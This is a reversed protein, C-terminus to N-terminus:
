WIGLRIRLVNNSDYVQILSNTIVLRAGTTASAVSFTATGVQLDAIKAGTITANAIKANTITGDTIKTSDVALNAIKANTILGNDIQASNTIIGSAAILGGTIANAAIKDTQIAGAQIKDATIANAAIADASIAGAAIKGATVSNAALKDATIAGAEIKGSTVSNADLKDTTIANAAIQGATITGSLDTTPVAASWGSSTYRYLKGDTTLVATRGVFNGLSPLSSVVEVPRLSDSFNDAALTGNIDTALVSSTWETGTYRYMKNDSTLFVIKAGTYGSPSPLSSVISVPEIGAAFSALNVSGSTISFIDDSWATGTWRYLANATTDYKIQGVFDGSAPLASVPEIGYAGAESFLNMVEQSFQDSDIFATTGAFMSTYDSKNGSRDVSRAWYYYTENIDLGSDVYSTGRINGIKQSSVRNDVINRFIEVYDFDADSPNTWNLILQKYGSRVIINDILAPPTVDGYSIYEIAVFDSQVGINNIARVRISYAIGTTVPAITFVRQSTFRSNYGVDADPVPDLISGYDLGFTETNAVSGYNENVLASETILGWDINGSGRIWQVEYNTVWPSEPADWQLIIGTQVAGDETIISQSDATINVPVDITYLSDKGFVTKVLESPISRKGISNIACVRFTYIGSIANPIDVSVSQTNPLTIYNNDGVKYAVEYATAGVSSLWSLTVTVSSDSGVYFLSEEASLQTPSPPTESLATIKRPALQIGGEIESYKNPNHELATVAFGGEEEVVAMVRFLQFQTGNTEILWISNKQPIDSFASNCTITKDTINTILRTELSGNPLIVSINGGVIEIQDKVSDDDIEIVTNTASVIRGGRRIGARLEDAVQIIQSPRLPNGEVGTKFTITETESKETFLIWRGVRNAQGRSTCGVAVVETQVIGYRAISDADEVYEVKQKYNDEPDNWTVLAVTHRAKLSSGSYSFAGDVVNSNTFQYEPDAPADFGLTLSGSSWYPMGKFISAMSNIVTYAEERNQLYINCTYRPETGGKGDDVLEDCYQSISYLVWKDIQSSDIFDGLGYRTNTILDYFCWAPNDTWAVKFTGDWIGSYVRTIPNYNTPVKVKLLKLDYARTPINSFQSADVRVGVIASNPYRFKGDIIETYSEFYTKNQLASSTSDDTLRRVRIDWPADGILAIRHSREYKSTTKGSITATTSGDPSIVQPIYGGGNSQVDIAYQVTTGSIDGNTTNQSSLAPVSIRIRVADVESNTIQRVIGSGSKEIQVGVINENEVAPFGAIYDQSQTGNVLTVATDTFNYTNDENQLPTNNFYVSKLGNALGEIEGESVLDLVQAYAISRLSDPSEQAVRGSSGGAKGGGGSGKIKKNM